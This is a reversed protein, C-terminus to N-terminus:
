CDRKRAIRGRDRKEPTALRRLGQKQSGSVRAPVKEMESGKM